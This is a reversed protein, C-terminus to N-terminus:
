PREAGFLRHFNQEVVASLTEQSEGRLEALAAYTQRLNAPHNLREIGSSEPFAFDPHQPPTAPADTEVLLRDMPVVAFAKRQRTKRPDIFSSNFSFYAGWRAFEPVMEAPGGYAHLLFGCAPLPTARLVDLMLASAHLCHISAPRNHAAAWRLQWTFVELQEEIPARVVGVLLPHDPRAATLIWRDLGIEGVAAHPTAAFQHLFAERWDDPRSGVDWPHIGYSPRIWPYRAALETVAQWDDDPHTGNVVAAALGIEGLRAAIEERHPKLEEFHLHNHADYLM